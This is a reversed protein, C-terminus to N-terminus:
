SRAFGTLRNGIQRERHGPNALQQSVARVLWANVSVSARAAAEEVTAKLGEPLRFTIRVAADDGAASAPAPADAEGQVYLLSPDNGVLRVEVHGSPLQATVELAAEGALQLMQLRAPMALVQVLREAARATAEDGLSALEGLERELAEVYPQLQM